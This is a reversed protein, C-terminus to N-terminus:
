RRVARIKRILEVAAADDQLVTWIAESVQLETAGFAIAGRAHAVLQPLQSLAALAGVALLERRLPPLGPRTLIRGYACTLVFDCLEPHLAHLHRLVPETNDGYITAFLNRGAAAQEAPALAGGTPPPMPWTAQLTEFATICRPFGFFLVAQLLMEEADARAAGHNRATALWNGLTGTDGPWIAAQALILCRDVSDLGPRALLELGSESM